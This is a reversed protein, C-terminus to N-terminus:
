LRLNDANRVRLKALLHQSPDDQFWLGLVCRWLVNTFKTPVLDSMELDQIEDEYTVSKLRSCIGRYM